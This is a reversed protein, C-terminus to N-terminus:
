NFMGSSMVAWAAVPLCVCLLLFLCGGGIAWPLWSPRGGSSSPAPSAGSGSSGSSPLSCRGGSNAVPSASAPEPASPLPPLAAAPQPAFVTAAGEAPIAEVGLEVTQGIGIVDGVKIETPAPVAAVQMPAPQAPSEDGLLSTVVKGAISGLISTGISEFSM